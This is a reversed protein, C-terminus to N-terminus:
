PLEPYPDWCTRFNEHLSDLVAMDEASIEFDFVALNEEIREKHTSKPLVVFDHQLSWRILIQANTKRYKKAIESVTEDELKKGHALPSYAEIQIGNKACYEALDKQYLFPHM